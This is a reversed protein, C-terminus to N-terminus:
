QCTCSAEEVCSQRGVTDVGCHGPKCVAAQGEPCEISCGVCPSQACPNGRYSCKSRKSSPDTTTGSPERTAFCAALMLLLLVLSRM